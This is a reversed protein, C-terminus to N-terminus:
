YRRPPTMEKAQHLKTLRFSPRFPHKISIAGKPCAAACTLCGVCLPTGNMTRELRPLGEKKRVDGKMFDKRSYGDIEICSGACATVCLGCRICNDSNFELEATHIEEVNDYDPNKLRKAFSIFAM